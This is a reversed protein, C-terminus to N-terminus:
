NVSEGGKISRWLGRTCLNVEIGALDACLNGSNRRHAFELVKPKSRASFVLLNEVIASCLGISDDGVAGYEHGRLLGGGGGVLKNLESVTRFSDRDSLHLLFSTTTEGRM